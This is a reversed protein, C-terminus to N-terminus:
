MGLLRRANGSFIMQEEAETFGLTKVAQITEAQPGWPSDSAFLTHDAGYSRIIDAAADCSMLEADGSRLCGDGNSTLRGISISTDIYLGMGRLADAAKQWCQWSGMHALVLTLGSVQEAARRIMAPTAHEVGPFGIDFGAHILVILKLERCRKLIRIYREDDFDVGQYVPHLKIGKIGQAAIRELEREPEPHDPHMCGFSYVGTQAGERNLAISTDNVHEVQRPNTAVPMVLSIDIGAQAMSAKLGSVTGDTFALTHSAAQLKGIVASAIKDPFTHTHFDIIM